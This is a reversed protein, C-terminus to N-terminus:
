IFIEDERISDLGCGTSKVTVSQAGTGRSAEIECKINNYLCAVAVFVTKRNKNAFILM